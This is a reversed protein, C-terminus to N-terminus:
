DRPSSPPCPVRRQARSEKASCGYQAHFWRSLGSPACFGLLGAVEALPRDGDLVHRAALEERVENVIASFCQGGDALRRQLTRCEVGVHASVQAISCRGTPLLLLVTRRVDGPLADGPPQVAADLLQRAYRAMAPDASPNPADLDERACVIGHFDQEFAVAPGMVRHHTRLDHPAAHALCVRRPQWDAGLFQRMLRLMVGLALEIRQRTARNAKGPKVEERIVVVSDFAEVMLSLAGNLLPLYRMLVDLSDRLTPQERVLLGVAGLNSLRRGEAMCLGFGENGSQVASAQLLAALRDVPIMLDPADLVRPSLGADLLMRVPDLGGACAVERYHTLSAARVLSSM